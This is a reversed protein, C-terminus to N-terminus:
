AFFNKTQMNMSLYQEGNGFALCHGLVVMIVAIFRVYDITKIRSTM